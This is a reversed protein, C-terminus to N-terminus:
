LLSSAPERATEIASALEDARQSGILLRKGSALELQVGRNGSVNYARGKGTLSFRIGWGGFDRLPQYAVAKCGAISRLPIRRNFFPAYHVQLTSASVRVSLRVALLLFPLALAVAIIAASIAILARDSMPNTGWPKGLYLQRYLGSGFMGVLTLSIALVIIWVWPQRMPQQEEFLVDIPEAKM